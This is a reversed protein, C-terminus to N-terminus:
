NARRQEEASGTDRQRAGKMKKNGFRKSYSIRFIREAMGYYGTYQFNVQPDDLRGTWNGRIFIDSVTFRIQGNNNALEKQIGFDLSSFDQWTVAGYLSPAFYFGSLEMSFQNPLKFSMSGNMYWSFQDFTNVQGDVEDKVQSWQATWSSRFDWWKTINLPFSITSSVVQGSKFNKAGNVQTNTELDVEPQFQGIIDDTFSYQVEFYLTKWSLSSRIADTISPQLAPNGTSVTTPDLFIFFPALQRFSPRNIRRSYSFQLSTQDNLKNNIFLSPFLNHYQRDVINPQEITGLNADTYEYRLGAKIDTQDSLKLSVSTYVAGIKEDMEAISSFIPVKSWIGQVSDEVIIDNEFTTFTGKAGFEMQVNDNIKKTYDIKGVSINMPTRRAVRLGTEDTLLGDMNFFQNTYNSPNNNYFYAYDFDVNLKTGATFEHQFNINGLINYAHNIEDNPIEIRSTEIGNELSVVENFADMTWDRDMWSVLGGIVTKPSLQIDLGLRANHVHTRTPDRDSESRNGITKGQFEFSRENRFIQPNNNYSWSYDGFLNVKNKRFNFNGSLGAKEKKGYGANVSFSGNVGDNINRKLVINIFGANGQADFSSPPTHILEIKDINDANMGALMDIVADMPMRSIKGNIMVVVGEKGSM